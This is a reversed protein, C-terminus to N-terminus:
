SAPLWIPQTSLLRVWCIGNPLEDSNVYYQIACLISSHTYDGVALRSANM